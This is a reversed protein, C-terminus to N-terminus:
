SRLLADVIPAAIVVPVTAHAVLLEIRASLGRAGRRFLALRHEFLVTVLLAVSLVEHSWLTSVVHAAIKARRRRAIVSEGTLSFIELSRRLASETGRPSAAHHRLTIKDRRRSTVELTRGGARASRIKRRGAAHISATLELARWRRM